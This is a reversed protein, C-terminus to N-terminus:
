STLKALHHNHGDSGRHHHHHHNYHNGLSRRRKSPRINHRHRLSESTSAEEEEGSTYDGAEIDRLRKRGRRGGYVRKTNILRHWLCGVVQGITCCCKACAGCSFKCLSKVVYQCIGIKLILIYFFLTTFPNSIYSISLILLLKGVDVFCLHDVFCLIDLPGACKDGCSRGLTSKLLAELSSGISNGIENTTKGIAGGM